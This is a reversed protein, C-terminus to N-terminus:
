KTLEWVVGTDQVFIVTNDSVKYCRMKLGMASANLISNELTFEVTAAPTANGPKYYNLTNGAFELVEGNNLEDGKMIVNWRGALTETTVPVNERADTCNRVLLMYTDTGDYLRICNDSKKSLKYEKSIDSLILQNADNLTYASQAYAEGTADKFMSVQHDSFIVFQNEVPAPVDKVFNAVLHWTGKLSLEQAPPQTIDGGNEDNGSFIFILSAAIAAIVLITGVILFISRKKM